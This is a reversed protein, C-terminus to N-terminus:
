ARIQVAEKAGERWILVKKKAEDIYAADNSISTNMKWFGPGKVGEDIKHL